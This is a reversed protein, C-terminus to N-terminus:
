CVALQNIRIVAWQIVVWCFQIKNVWVFLLHCTLSRYEGSYTNMLPSRARMINAIPFSDKNDAAM